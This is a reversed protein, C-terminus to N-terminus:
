KKVESGQIKDKKFYSSMKRYTKKIFIYIKKYLPFLLVIFILLRNKQIFPNQLYSESAILFIISYLIGFKNFIRCIIKLIFFPITIFVLRILFM